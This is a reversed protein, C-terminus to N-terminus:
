YRFDCDGEKWKLSYAMIIGTIIGLCCGMILSLNMECLSNYPLWKNFHCSLLNAKSLKTLVWFGSLIGLINDVNDINNVGKFIKSIITNVNSGIMSFEILKALIIGSIWLYSKRLIKRLAFYQLVGISMIALLFNSADMIDNLFYYKNILMTDEAMMYVYRILFPMIYSASSLVIWEKLRVSYKRIIIWQFISVSMAITGWILIIPIILEGQGVYYADPGHIM